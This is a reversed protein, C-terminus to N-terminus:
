LLGSTLCWPQTWRVSSSVSAGLPLVQELGRLLDSYFGPRQSQLVDGGWSVVGGHWESVRSAAVTGLFNDLERAKLGLGRTTQGRGAKGARVGLVRVRVTFEM